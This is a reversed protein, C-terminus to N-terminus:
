RSGGTSTASVLHHVHLWRSRECGPVRCGRDRDEVVSRTREPVTRFVRGVSVANGGAELVPRVRSDCSLFRRLGQPLGPGLHVHGGVEGERAEVHLLVLPRDRHPRISAGPALSRDAGAV